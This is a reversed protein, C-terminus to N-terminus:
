LLMFVLWNVVHLTHNWFIDMGGGGGGWGVRINKQKIGEGGVILNLKKTNYFLIVPFLVPVLLHFNFCNFAVM